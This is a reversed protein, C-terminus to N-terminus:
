RRVMRKVRKFEKKYERIVEDDIDLKLTMSLDGHGGSALIEPITSTRRAYEDIFEETRRISNDVYLSALYYLRRLGESTATGRLDAAWSMFAGYSDVFRNGLHIINASNGPVGPAGFAWEQARLDLVKMLNESILQSHGMCEGIYGIADADNKITRVHKAYGLEYDRREPSLRTKGQLLTGAFLFYEWGDPSLAILHDQEAQTVPATSYQVNPAQTPVVRASTPSIKQIALAALDEPSTIRLDIYGVTSHLGPVASDDFRAPLIYEAGIEIARAQASKREHSTWVKQIYDNSIFIICYRAKKRYVEDLHEYLDKGWLTAQENLDYFVRVNRSTLSNAVREVYARQEGAFSLCVDYEFAPGTM